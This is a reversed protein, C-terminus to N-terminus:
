RPLDLDKLLPLCVEIVTGVGVTSNLHFVGHALEAREQMSVLGLTDASEHLKPSFGRGNDQVTLFLENDRRDLRVTIETAGSHKLSNTVAEQAIRYLAAKLPVALTPLEDTFEVKVLSHPRFAEELAKRLGLKDLVPPWLQKALNDVEEMLQQAMLDVPQKTQAALRLAYLEQGIGDHLERALRRREEERAELMKRTILRSTRAQERSEVESLEHFRLVTESGKASGKRPLHSVCMLTGVLAGNRKRLNTRFMTTDDRKLIPCSERCKEGSPLCCVQCLPRTPVDGTIGLLAKAYPNSATIQRYEDVLILGQRSNQFIDEFRRSQHEVDRRHSRILAFMFATFFLAALFMLAIRGLAEEPSPRVERSYLLLWEFLAAAATPVLVGLIM